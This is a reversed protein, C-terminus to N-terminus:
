ARILRPVHRWSVVQASSRQVYTMTYDALWQHAPIERDYIRPYAGQWLRPFLDDPVSPFANLEDLSPPMLVLIGSRGALSQTVSQSLGFEQSGTLIFRGAEPRADIESQLYTLLDPAHQIEDIIAGDAYESFYMM